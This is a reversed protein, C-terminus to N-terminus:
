APRHGLSLGPWRAKIAGNGAIHDAHGHTNLIAAPTLQRQELHEVIREGDFGPDVVLCDERNELSAVFANEGFMDSTVVAVILTHPNAM